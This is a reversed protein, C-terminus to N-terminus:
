ENVVGRANTGCGRRRPDRDLAGGVQVLHSLADQDRGPRWDGAALAAMLRTRLAQSAESGFLPSYDPVLRGALQGHVSNNAQEMIAMGAPNPCRQMLRRAVGRWLSIALTAGTPAVASRHHMPVLPDPIM